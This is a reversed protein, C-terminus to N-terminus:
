IKYFNIQILDNYNIQKNEKLENQCHKDIYCALNFLKNTDLNQPLNKVKGLIDYHPYAAIQRLLKYEPPTIFNM